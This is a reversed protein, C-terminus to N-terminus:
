RRGKSREISGMLAGFFGSSAGGAGGSATPDSAGGAAGGGDSGGFAPRPLVVPAGGAAAASQGAVVPASIDGAALRTVNFEYGEPAAASWAARFVTVMKDMGTGKACQLLTFHFKAAALRRFVEEADLGDPDPGDAYRDRYAKAAFKRGHPPADTVLVILRKCADATRWGMTTPDMAKALGGAVDEPPDDGGEAKLPMLQRRVEMVDGSLPVVVFRTADGFDRYGVFGVRFSAGKNEDQVRAALQVSFNKPQPHPNLTPPTHSHPPVPIPPRPHAGSRVGHRADSGALLRTVGDANAPATLTHAHTRIHKNHKHGMWKSGRVLDLVITLDAALAM